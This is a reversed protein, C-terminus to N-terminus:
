KQAGVHLVENSLFGLLYAPLYVLTTDKFDLKVSNKTKKKIRAREKAIVKDVEERITFGGIRLIPEKTEPDNGNRRHV